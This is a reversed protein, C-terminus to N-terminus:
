SRKSGERRTVVNFPMREFNWITVTDKSKLADLILRGVAGPDIPEWQAIYGVTIDIDM